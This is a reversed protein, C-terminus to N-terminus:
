RPQQELLPRQQEDDDSANLRRVFRRQPRDDVAGTALVVADYLQRLEDITVDRGVELNGFFRLSPSDHLAAFRRIVSKTSQHDPAVGARVLGYPVPLRDVIDVEVGAGSQEILGEAVYYGAPGSGIVAVKM